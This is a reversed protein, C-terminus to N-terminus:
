LAFETTAAESIVALLALASLGPSHCALAGHFWVARARTPQAILMKTMSTPVVLIRAAITSTRVRIIRASCRCRM